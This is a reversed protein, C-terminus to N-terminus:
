GSQYLGRRLQDLEVRRAAEVEAMERERARVRGLLERFLVLNREKKERLASYEDMLSIYNNRHQEVELLLPAM